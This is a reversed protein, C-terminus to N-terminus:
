EGMYEDELYWVILLKRHEFILAGEYLFNASLPEIAISASVVKSTHEAGRADLPGIEHFLFILHSSNTRYHCHGLKVSRLILQM